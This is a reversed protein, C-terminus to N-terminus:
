NSAASICVNMVTFGRFLVLLFCIHQKQNIQLYKSVHSTRCLPNSPFVSASSSEKVDTGKM